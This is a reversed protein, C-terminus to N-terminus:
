STAVALKGIASAITAPASNYPTIFAYRVHFGYAEVKTATLQATAAGGISSGDVADQYTYVGMPLNAIPLTEIGWQYKGDQTSHGLICDPAYQPVMGVSGAQVAFATAKHGAGNALNNTFHFIKDNYQYSKNESNMEGKELLRNRVLSEFSPNAVVHFPGYFDNGHMLPNIDGVVADQEALPAVIVNSVLSYRGGLTDALVQTKTNELATMCAQDLTDLLALAYKRLQQNFERQMSIENNFHQAPFIRFGFYYDTFSVSYVQSTSPDGTITVPQTTNAITVGSDYDIVPIQLSSGSAQLAKQRLDESIIGMPDASQNQFLDLGGYRSARTEWKDIPSQARFALLRTNILSM